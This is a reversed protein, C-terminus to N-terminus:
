DKPQGFVGREELERGVIRLMEIDHAERFANYKQVLEDNSLDANEFETVHRGSGDIADGFENFRSKQMAEVPVVSIDWDPHFKQLLVLEKALLEEDGPTPKIKAELTTKIGRAAARHRATQGHWGRGKGSM